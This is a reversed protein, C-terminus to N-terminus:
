GAYAQFFQTQKNAAHWNTSYSEQNATTQQFYRGQMLDFGCQQALEAHHIDEVNFLISRADLSGALSCLEKLKDLLLSDRLQDLNQASLGVFDPLIRAIMETASKDLSQVDFKLALRYGRRQYNELGKILLSYLRAYATSVTLGIAVNATQLGCRVIIEEFYAGHDAKIGLIHRPDVDLFLVKDLHSQPLYNLMHVTRSLRDFNIVSDFGSNQIAPPVLLKDLEAVNNTDVKLLAYHGIFQNPQLTERIASLQTSIRATGFLGHVEGNELIFARIKSNHEQELRDNFYEVLQQLPV